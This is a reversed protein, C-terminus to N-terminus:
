MQFPRGYTSLRSLVEVTGSFIRAVSFEFSDFGISTLVEQVKQRRQYPQMSAALQAALQPAHVALTHPPQRTIIKQDDFLLVGGLTRMHVADHLGATPSKPTFYYDGANDSASTM